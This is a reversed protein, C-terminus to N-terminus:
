EVEKHVAGDGYNPCDENILTTGCASCTGGKHGEPDGDHGPAGYDAMGCSCGRVETEPEDSVALRVSLTEVLGGEGINGAANSMAGMAQALSPGRYYVTAYPKSAVNSPRIGIYRSTVTVIYQKM